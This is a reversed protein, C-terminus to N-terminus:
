VAENLTGESEINYKQVEKYSQHLCGFIIGYSLIYGIESLLYLSTAVIGDVRAIFAVFELVASVIMLGLAICVFNFLPSKREHKDYIGDILEFISITLSFNALMSLVYTPVRTDLTYELVGATLAMLGSALGFWFAILCQKNVVMTIILTVAFAVMGVFRIINFISMLVAITIGVGDPISANGSLGLALLTATLSLISVVFYVLFIM